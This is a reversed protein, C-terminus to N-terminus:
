FIGEMIGQVQNNSIISTLINGVVNINSEGVNGDVVSRKINQLFRIGTTNLAFKNSTLVSQVFDGSIEFGQCSSNSSVSCETMNGLINIANTAGGTIEFENAVIIQVMLM